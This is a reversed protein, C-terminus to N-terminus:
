DAKQTAPSLSHNISDTESKGQLSRAQKEAKESTAQYNTATGQSTAPFQKVHASEPQVQLLNNPEDAALSISGASVLCLVVAALGLQFKIM